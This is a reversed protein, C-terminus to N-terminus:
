TVYITGKEGCNAPVTRLWLALYGLGGLVLESVSWSEHLVPPGALLHQIVGRLEPRLHVHLPLPSLLVSPGAFRHDGEHLLALIPFQLPGHLFKNLALGLSRRPVFLSPPILPHLSEFGPRGYQRASTHRGGGRGLRRFLLPNLSLTNRLWTLLDGWQSGGLWSSCLQGGLDRNLPYWTGLGSAFTRRRRGRGERDCM